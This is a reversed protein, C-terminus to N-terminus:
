RRLKVGVRVEDNNWDANAVTTDYKSHQYKGYLIVDRNVFYEVGLRLALEREEVPIGAYDQMTYFLGASAVLYERFAHRAELGVQRSLAGASGAVNTEGFSSNASLLLSTLASVRWALSADAILGSVNSLRRDDPRQVGYGLSAEGRLVKGTQGFSVGLRYREGTSDRRIGDAAAAAHERQDLEVESFVSFTPKLEYTARVAETGEHYNRDANSVLATGTTVASYDVESLSGRLQLSVRNFRQNYTAAVRDTTVDARGGAAVAELASRSEQTVDRSVETQLNARRTIDLRGRAELHYARDNETAYDSFWSLGGRGILELAHTGWDSVFRVSPKTEFAADGRPSPSRFVNGVYATALDLEPFMVFSGIRIGVPDYPELRALREIRRDRVPDIDEIQFLLPDHGAPPNEFAAIDDPARTDFKTQDVGDPMAPPEEPNIIGDMNSVPEPSVSVDGDRVAPRMGVPLPRSGETEDEPLPEEGPNLASADGDRVQEGPMTEGAQPLPDSAPGAPRMAPSRAGQRSQAHAATPEFLAALVTAVAFGALFWLLPRNRSM